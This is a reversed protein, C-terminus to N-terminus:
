QWGQAALTGADEAQGFDHHCRAHVRLTEPDGLVALGMQERSRPCRMRQHRCPFAEGRVIGEHVDHAGDRLAQPRFVVPFSRGLHCRPPGRQYRWSQYRLEPRLRIACALVGRGNHDLAVRGSRAQHVVHSHAEDHGQVASQVGEGEEDRDQVVSPDEEEGDRGEGDRGEGGRGEGGRGEGHRDDHLIPDM